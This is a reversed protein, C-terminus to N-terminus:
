GCAPNRTGSQWLAVVQNAQAETITGMWQWDHVAALAESASIYCDGDTDYVWPDFVGGLPSLSYPYYLLTESQVATVQVTRTAYGVKSITLTYLGPDLGAFQYRGNIDTTTSAGDLTVLAGEILDGTESDFITGQISATGVKLKAMAEVVSVMAVMMVLGMLPGMMTRANFEAM